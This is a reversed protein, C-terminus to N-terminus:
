PTPPPQFMPGSWADLRWRVMLAVQRFKARKPVYEDGRKPQFELRVGATAVARAVTAAIGADMRELTSALFEGGKGRVDIRTEFGSVPISVRPQCSSGICPPPTGSEGTDVPQLAGETLAADLGWSALVVRPRAWSALEESRMPGSCALILLASALNM